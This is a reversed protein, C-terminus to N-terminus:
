YALLRFKDGTIGKKKKGTAKKNAQHKYRRNTNEKMISM